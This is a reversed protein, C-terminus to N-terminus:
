GLSPNSKADTLPTLFGYANVPGIRGSSNLVGITRCHWSRVLGQLTLHLLHRMPRVSHDM